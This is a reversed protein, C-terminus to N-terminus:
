LQVGSTHIDSEGIKRTARALRRGASSLTLSCGPRSPRTLSHKRPSAAQSLAQPLADFDAVVAIMVLLPYFM